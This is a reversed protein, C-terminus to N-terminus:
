RAPRRFRRVDGDRAADGRRGCPDVRPLGRPGQGRRRPRARRAVAPSVGSDRRGRAYRRAHPHGAGVLVADDTLTGAQALTFLQEDPM